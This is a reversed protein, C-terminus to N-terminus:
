GRARPRRTLVHWLRSSEHSGRSVCSISLRVPRRSALTTPAACWAPGRRPPAGAQGGARARAGAPVSSPAAFRRAAGGVGLPSALWPRCTPSRDGRVRRRLDGIRHRRRRAAGAACGPACRRRRSLSPRGRGAGRVARAARVAGAAGWGAVGAVGKGAAPAGGSTPGRRRSGRQRCVSPRMRAWGMYVVPAATGGM